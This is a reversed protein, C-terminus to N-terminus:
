SFLALAEDLKPVDIEGVAIFGLYIQLFVRAKQAAPWEQRGTLRREDLKTFYAELMRLLMSNDLRASIAASSEPLWLSGSPPAPLERKRVGVEGRDCRRMPEEGAALWALRVDCAYALAVLRDRSPESKGALYKGIVARSLESRRAVQLPGGVFTAAYALRERFSRPGPADPLSVPDQGSM